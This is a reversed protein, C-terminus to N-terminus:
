RRRHCSGAEAAHRADGAPHRPRPPPPFPPTSPCAAVGPFLHSLFSITMSARRPPDVVPDRLVRRHFPPPAICHRRPAGPRWESEAQKQTAISTPVGIINKLEGSKLLEGIRAVAFAATSGTGLGVVMGSKVYEVAKHAALKKLEDQSLAALAMQGRRGAFVAARPAVCQLRAGSFASRAATCRAAAKENFVASARQVTVSM